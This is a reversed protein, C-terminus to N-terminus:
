PLLSWLLMIPVPSLSPVTLVRVSVNPDAVLPLTEKCGLPLAVTSVQVPPCRGRGAASVEGRASM